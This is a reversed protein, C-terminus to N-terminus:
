RPPARGQRSGRLPQARRRCPTPTDAYPRRRCRPRTSACWTSARGSTISTISARSTPSRTRATRLYVGAPFALEEAGQAGDTRLRDAHLGQALAKTASCEAAIPHARRRHELRRAAMDGAAIALECRDWSRAAGVEVRYTLVASTCPAVSGLAFGLQPGTRRRIALPSGNIRATGGRYRVGLAARRVHRQSRVNGINRVTVRLGCTVSRSRCPRRDERGRARGHRHRRDMAYRDNPLRSARRRPWPSNTVSPYARRDRGRAHIFRQGRGRAPERAHRAVARVRRIDLRRRPGHFILAGRAAHRAGHDRGFDARQRLPAVITYTRDCRGLVTRHVNDLVSRSTRERRSTRTATTARSRTAAGRVQASNTM